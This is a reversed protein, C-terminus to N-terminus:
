PTYPMCLRLFISENWIVYMDVVVVVHSLRIVDIQFSESISAQQIRVVPMPFESKRGSTAIIHLDDLVLLGPERRM